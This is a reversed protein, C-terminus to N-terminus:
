PPMGEAPEYAADSVSWLPLGHEARYRNALEACARCIPQRVGGAAVKGTDLDIPISPVLNPNFTFVRGCSWCPSMAFYGPEDVM